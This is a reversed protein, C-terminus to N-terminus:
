LTICVIKTFLVLTFKISSVHLLVVTIFDHIFCCLSLQSNLTFHKSLSHIFLLNASTLLSHLVLSSLFVSFTLLSESLMIVLICIISTDGDDCLHLELSHLLSLLSNMSNHELHLDKVCQIYPSVM